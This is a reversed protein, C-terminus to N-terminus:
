SLPQEPNSLDITWLPDINRFTVLYAMDGVFRSSWIRENVAIDRVEGVVNLTTEPFSLCTTPLHHLNKWGGADGSGPQRHSVSIITTSLSHFSITSSATLAWKRHLHDCWELHRFPPSQDSRGLRSQELVVLRPRTGCHDTYRYICLCQEM